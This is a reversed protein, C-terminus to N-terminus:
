FVDQTWKCPVERHDTVVQDVGIMQQQTREVEDEGVSQKAVGPLLQEVWVKFTIVDFRQSQPKKISEWYDAM